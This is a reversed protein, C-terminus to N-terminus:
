KERKIIKEINEIIQNNKSKQVTRCQDANTEANNVKQINQSKIIKNATRCQEANSKM